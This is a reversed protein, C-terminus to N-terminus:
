GLSKILGTLRAVPRVGVIFHAIKGDKVMVTTPAAQVGLKKAIEASNQINIVQVVGPFTPQLSEMMPTMTKCASCMPSFFYFCLADGAAIKNGLKGSIYPVPTGIKKRGALVVKVNIILMLTIFGGIISIFVWVITSM